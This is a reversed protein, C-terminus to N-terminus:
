VTPRLRRRNFCVAIAATALLMISPEPVASVIASDFAGAIAAYGADNPHVGDGSFLSTNLSHDPNLFLDYEDVFRANPFAAPTINAKLWDSEVPTAAAIQQVYLPSSGNAIAPPPSAILVVTTPRNAAFWNLTAAIDADTQSPTLPTTYADIPDNSGIEYLVVNPSLASRGTGNGGTLWYGGHNDTFSGTTPLNPSPVDGNLNNLIDRSTFGGFATIQNQGIATLAASAGLAGAHDLTPDYAGQYQIPINQATLDNFLFQRYGAMPAGDYGATISDGLPMITIAAHSVSTLLFVCLAAFILRM